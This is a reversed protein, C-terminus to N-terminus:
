LNELTQFIERNLLENGPLVAMRAEMSILRSSRVDKCGYSRRLGGGCSAESSETALRVIKPIRHDASQRQVNVYSYRDRSCVV